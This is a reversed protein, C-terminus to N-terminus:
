NGKAYRIVLHTTPNRMTNLLRERGPTAAAKLPTSPVVRPSTLWDDTNQSYSLLWYPLRSDSLLLHNELAINDNTLSKLFGSQNQMAQQPIAVSDWAMERLNCSTVGSKRNLRTM